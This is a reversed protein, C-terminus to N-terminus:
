NEIPKEIPLTGQHRSGKHKGRRDAKISKWKELQESNLLADIQENRNSRLVKMQAKKEDESMSTNEKLTRMRSRHQEYISQWQAAQDDSLGLDHKIQEAKKEKGGKQHDPTHPEEQAQMAIIVLFCLSSTIM